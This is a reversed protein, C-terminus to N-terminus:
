SLGVNKKRGQLPSKSKTLNLSIFPNGCRRLYWYTKKLGAALEPPLLRLLSRAVRSYGTPLEDDSSMRNTLGDHEANVFGVGCCLRWIQPFTTYYIYKILFEPNRGRARLYMAGLRKPLLPLWAICYHPERFCLYNECNLQFQGGPRLVRFVERLVDAPNHVHELVQLSIVYDFFGDAFPLADGGKIIIRTPDHGEMQLRRRAVSAFEEGPEVGYADAGRELLELVLGGQGAGVDLIKKERMTWGRTSLQDLIRKPITRQSEMHLRERCFKETLGLQDHFYNFTSAELADAVTCEEALRRKVDYNYGSRPPIQATM